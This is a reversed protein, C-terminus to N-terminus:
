EAFEKNYREQFAEDGKKILDMPKLGNDKMLKEGKALLEDMNHIPKDLSYVKNILDLVEKDKLHEHEIDVDYEKTFWTDKPKMVTKRVDPRNKDFYSWIKQAAPRIMRDPIIGEPSVMSLALDYMLPGHKDIAFTRQIMFEKDSKFREMALYGEVTKTKFNFLILKMYEKSPKKTLSKIVGTDPENSIVDEASVARENVSENIYQEFTKIRM